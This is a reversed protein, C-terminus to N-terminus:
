VNVTEEATQNALRAEEIEIARAKRHQEYTYDQLISALKSLGQEGLELQFPRWSTSSARLQYDSSTVGADALVKNYKAVLDQKRRDEISSKLRAIERDKSDIVIQAKVAEYDGVIFRPLVLDIRTIPELENTDYNRRTTHFKVQVKGKIRYGTPALDLIEAKTIDWDSTVKQKTSYAYFKGVTLDSIKM